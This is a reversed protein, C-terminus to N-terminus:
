RGVRNKTSGLGKVGFDLGGYVYGTWILAGLLVLFLPNQLPNPGIKSLVQAPINSIDQGMQTEPMVAVGGPVAPTYGNFGYAGTATNPDTFM